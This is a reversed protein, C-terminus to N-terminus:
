VLEYICVPPPSTSGPPPPAPYIEFCQQILICYFGFYPSGGGWANKSFSKVGRQLIKDFVDPVGERSNEVRTCRHVLKYIVTQHKHSIYLKKTPIVLERQGKHSQSLFPLYFVNAMDTTNTVHPINSQVKNSLEFRLFTTRRGLFNPHEVQTLNLSFQCNDFMFNDFM